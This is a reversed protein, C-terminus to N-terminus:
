IRAPSLFLSFHGYLMDLASSYQPFFCPLPTVHRLLTILFACSCLTAWLLLGQIRNPTPDFLISKKHKTRVELHPNGPLWPSPHMKPLPLLLHMPMFSHLYPCTQSITLVDPIALSFFLLSICSKISSLDATALSPPSQSTCESETSAPTVGPCTQRPQRGSRTILPGLWVPPMAKIVLFSNIFPINRGM